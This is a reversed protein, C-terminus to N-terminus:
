LSLLIRIIISELLQILILAILPSFDIGMPYQGIFRSLIRRIPNIVLDTTERIFRFVPNMPNHPIWSMVVRIVIMIYYVKFITQVIYILRYLSM